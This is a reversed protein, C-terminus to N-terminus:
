SKATFVHKIIYGITFLPAGSRWYGCARRWLANLGYMKFVIVLHKNLSVSFYELLIVSSCMVVHVSM